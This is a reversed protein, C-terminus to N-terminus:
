PPPPLDPYSMYTPIYTHTYTSHTQEQRNSRSFFAKDIARLQALGDCLLDAFEPDRPLERLVCALGEADGARGFWCLVSSLRLKGSM